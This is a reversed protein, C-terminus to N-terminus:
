LRTCSAFILCANISIFVRTRVFIFDVIMLAKNDETTLFTGLVVVLKLLVALFYVEATQKLKDNKQNWQLKVQVLILM